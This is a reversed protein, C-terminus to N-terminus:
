ALRRVISRSARRHGFSRTVYCGECVLSRTVDARRSWGVDTLMHAVGSFALVGEPMLLLRVVNEDLLKQRLKGGSDYWYLGGGFEGSSYGVL